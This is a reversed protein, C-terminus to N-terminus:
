LAESLRQNRKFFKYHVMWKPKLKDTIMDLTHKVREFNTGAYFVADFGQARDIALALRAQRFNDPNLVVVDYGPIQLAKETDHSDRTASITPAFDRYFTQPTVIENVGFQTNAYSGLYIKLSKIKEDDDTIVLVRNANFLYFLLSINVPAVKFWNIWEKVGPEYNEWIREVWKEFVKKTQSGEKEGTVYDLCWQHMHTFRSERAM